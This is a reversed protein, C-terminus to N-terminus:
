VNNKSENTIVPTTGLGDYFVPMGTIPDLAGDYTLPVQDYTWGLGSKSEGVVSVSGKSENTFSVASPKTENTISMNNTNM